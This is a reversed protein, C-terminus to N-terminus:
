GTLSFRQKLDLWTQLRLFGAEGLVKYSSDLLESFERRWFKNRENVLM